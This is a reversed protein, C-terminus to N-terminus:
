NADEIMNESGSSSRYTHRDTVTHTHTHAKTM